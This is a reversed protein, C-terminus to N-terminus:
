LSASELRSVVDKSLADLVAHFRRNALSQLEPDLDPPAFTLNEGRQEKIRARLMEIADKANVKRDCLLVSLLQTTCELMLRHAMAEAHAELESEM